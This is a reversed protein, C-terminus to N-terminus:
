NWFSFCALTRNVYCVYPPLRQAEVLHRFIYAIRDNGAIGSLIWRYMSSYSYLHGFDLLTVARCSVIYHGINLVRVEM